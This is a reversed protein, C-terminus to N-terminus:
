ITSESRTAGEQVPGLGPGGLHDPSSPAPLTESSRQGAQRRGSSLYVVGGLLAPILIVVFFLLSTGLAVAKPVGIQGFLLVFSAERVGLGAGITVPAMSVIGIIPVFALYHRFEAESGLALGLLFIITIQLLSSTLSLALGVLLTRPRERQAHLAELVNEVLSGAAGLRGLLRSLPRGIRRSYLLAFAVCAIASVIVVYRALGSQLLAKWSLALGLGCCTMLGVIGLLRDTLVTGFSVASTVEGDRGGWTRVVDGALGGPVFTNFFQAVLLLSFTRVYTNQSGAERLLLHWRLTGIGFNVLGLLLALALFAPSADLVIGVLRVWTDGTLFWALLGFGLGAKLLLLPWGRRTVPHASVTM